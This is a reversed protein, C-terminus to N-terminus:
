FLTTKIIKKKFFKPKGYHGKWGTLKSKAALWTLSLALRGVMSLDLSSPSPLQSHELYSPDPLCIVVFFSPNSLSGFGLFYPNSL